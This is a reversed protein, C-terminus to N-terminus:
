DRDPGGSATPPPEVVWRDGWRMVTWGASRLAQPYFGSHDKLYRLDGQIDNSLPRGLERTRRRDFQTARQLIDDATGGYAFSQMVSWRRGSRDRLGLLPEPFFPLIGRAGVAATEVTDSAEANTRDEPEPDMENGLVQEKM